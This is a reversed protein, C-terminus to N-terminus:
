LRLLDANPKETGNPGWGDVSPLVSHSERELEFVFVARRGVRGNQM